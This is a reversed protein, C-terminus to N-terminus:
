IFKKLELKTIEAREYSEWVKSNIERYKLRISESYNFGCHDFMIKLANAEAMDYHFLTDDADILFIYYLKMKEGYNAFYLNDM